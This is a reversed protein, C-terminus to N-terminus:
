CRQPNMDFSRIEDILWDILWDIGKSSNTFAISHWATPVRSPAMGPPQCVVRHWALHIACSDTSHWAAPVCSPAMGSPKCVVRHWALRSACSETGHWATSVYSPAMGPPQCVVRHLALRNACSETGHWATSVSSWSEGQNRGEAGRWWKRVLGACKQPTWTSLSSCLYAKTQLIDAPGEFADERQWLACRSSVPTRWHVMKTPVWYSTSTRLTTWWICTEMRRIVAIIILKVGAKDEPSSIPPNHSMPPTGRRYLCQTHRVVFGQWKEAVKFVSCRMVTVVSSGREKWNRCPAADSHTLIVPWHHRSHLKHITSATAEDAPVFKKYKTLHM